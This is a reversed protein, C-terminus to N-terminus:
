PNLAREAARGARTDPAHEIARRFWRQASEPRDDIRQQRGMLHAIRARTADDLAPDSKEYQETLWHIDARTQDAVNFFGPLEITSAARVLRVPIDDPAAEVAANLHEGGAEAHAQKNWPLTADRSLLLKASGLYARILPQEPHQEHLAQFREHAAEAAEADGDVGALHLRRATAFADSGFPDAAKAGGKEAEPGREGPSSECAGILVPATLIVLWRLCRWM